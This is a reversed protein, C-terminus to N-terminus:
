VRKLSVVSLFSFIALISEAIFAPPYYGTNWVVPARFPVKGYNPLTGNAKIVPLAANKPM